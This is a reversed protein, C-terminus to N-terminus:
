APTGARFLGAGRTPLTLMVGDTTAVGQGGYQVDDTTLILDWRGPIRLPVHVQEDEAFNFIGMLERDGVAPVLRIAVWKAVPDVHTEIATEGPRLAPEDRRLRLLDRYLRLIGDHPARARKAWDLRSREFTASAVPDPVEGDWGFSAFEERRGRRVADALGPDDHSVFYLFPNTEGYEEGMFLMPIYPNFLLLAAALRQGSEPLLAGFREGAARNGVQDHNQISIIFRHTPVDLASAGHRRRRHPSYRGDYVFRRQLAEAISVVGAFDEYYGRREGTLVTHIAHHFDDSWQADVGYGGRVTPRVIRPDNLDSEAIVVVERGDAVGIARVAEALEELLHKAGFDFIGHVADLRLGDLRYESVWYCANDLVFRRVQDSDPGDYNLAMGWPTKYRDTFYPGFQGLYNGDPGVHNYVVDLIVALGAAHAADVLRRLGDPGGYSSQPAYLDVGDYGWNRRGPFEAVPMLEIATVGLEVLDSLRDIAADFTGTETFTGIHLEYIVLDRMARGRWGTAQWVFAAPDVVRSSGHPGAPQWRSVPDPLLTTDDGLRFRYDDGARVGGIVASWVGDPGGALRHTGEAAGNEVVVVVQDAVPAWVAIEVGEATVRAGRELEWRNLAVATM